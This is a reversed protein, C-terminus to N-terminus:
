VSSLDTSEVLQDVPGNKRKELEKLILSRTEEKVKKKGSGLHYSIASRDVGHKLGAQRFSLGKYLVDEYIDVWLNLSSIGSSGLNFNNKMQIQQNRVGACNRSCFPGERGQKKNSRVNRMAKSFGNSCVPCFGFYKEEPRFSQSKRINESRSLVQLNDLNDNTKDEDIHDVTEDGKLRRGIKVELLLRAYQSTKSKLGSGSLSCRKRNDRGVYPKSVRSYGPYLELVRAEFDEM